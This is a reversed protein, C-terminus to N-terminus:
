KKEMSAAMKSLLSGKHNSLYTLQSQMECLEHFYANSTINLTASFKLTTNYFGKLFKVFVAAIEWDTYTPPGKKKKGGEEEGFYSLYKDDEDEYREFANQFKIASELMLYTSNWRTPVDLVLLGNFEIKEREACAKFKSLRAPSSRIFRVANRIASISDHLDKLGESVILNIIHACCRSHMFEGGLVSGKWSNLKRKLFAIMTDNSSANDVTITLVRDIGWDHLCSEIVKGVLEGKHSSIQCFNLVKKCLNWEVDIYHATLCMYNINQLSTWCDTTLCVRQNQKKIEAQLKKKEDSFLKYVDRVVTMRSPIVFRPQM